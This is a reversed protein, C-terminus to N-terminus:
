ASSANWPNYTLNFETVNVKEGDRVRFAVPTDQELGEDEQEYGYEWISPEDDVLPDSVPTRPSANDNNELDEPPTTCVSDVAM